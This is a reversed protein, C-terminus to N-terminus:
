VAPKDAPYPYKVTVSQGAVNYPVEKLSTKHWKYEAVKHSRSVLIFTINKASLQEPFQEGDLQELVVHIAQTVYAQVRADDDVPFEYLSLLPNSISNESRYSIVDWKESDLGFSETINKM